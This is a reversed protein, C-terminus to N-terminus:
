KGGAALWAQHDAITLDRYVKLDFFRAVVIPDLVSTGAGLLGTGFSKDLTIGMRWLLEQVSGICTWRNM